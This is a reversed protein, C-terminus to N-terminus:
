DLEIRKSGNPMNVNVVNANSFREKMQKQKARLNKNKTTLSKNKVELEEGTKLLQRNKRTLSRIQSKQESILQAEDQIKEISNALEQNELVVSLLPGVSMSDKADFVEWCKKFNLFDANSANIMKILVGMCNKCIKKDGIDDFSKIPTYIKSTGYFQYGFGYPTYGYMRRYLKYDLYSESARCLSKGVGLEQFAGWVTHSYVDGAVRTFFHITKTEESVAPVIRINVSNQAFSILNM